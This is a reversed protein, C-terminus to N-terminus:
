RSGCVLRIADVGEATVSGHTEVLQEIEDDLQRMEDDIRAVVPDLLSLSQETPFLKNILSTMDLNPEYFESSAIEDLISTVQMNLLWRLVNKINYLSVKNSYQPTKSREEDGVQEKLSDLNAEDDDAVGSM